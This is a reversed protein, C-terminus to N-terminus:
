RTDAVQHPGLEIRHHTQRRGHHEGLHSPHGHAQDVGHHDAPDAGFRQATDRDAARQEEGDRQEGHAQQHAEVVLHCVGEAGSATRLRM